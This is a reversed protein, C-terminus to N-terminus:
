HVVPIVSSLKAQSAIGLRRSIHIVRAAKRAPLVKSYKALYRVRLDHIQQDRQLLADVYDTADQDSLTAYRDAYKRVAAIQGNIVAKQEGQFQKFLPWFATAEETTLSISKSVVETELAQLDDRFQELVPGTDAKTPQASATPPNAKAAQPEAAALPSAILLGLLLGACPKLM